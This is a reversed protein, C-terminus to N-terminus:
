SNRQMEKPTKGFHAKFCSTFYSVSSFGITFAVVKILEGRELREKAKNLRYLRIYENPGLNILAKLKRQLQREGMALENALLKLKFSEDSYNQEIVQNIKKIFENDKDSIENKIQEIAGQNDENILLSFRNRLVSRIALLNSVRLLLEEEDFPKTLYEDAQSKWGTLRSERDGRATLLIIPIHSTNQDQKLSECVEFGDKEPMMVDSIILDPVQMIATKIGRVGNEATMCHYDSELTEVIYKRMDPNDEIVLINSKINESEVNSFVQTIDEAAEEKLERSQNILSELELELSDDNYNKNEARGIRKTTTPLYVTFISGRGEESSLTIYGGHAEVLEKVLSLGIGAGTVKESYENLVRQYRDFVINQMGEPIGIGTDVVTIKCKEDSIKESSLSIMGGKQTYKVANSLLNLLIKEIADPATELWVAQNKILKFKIGKDESLDEFANAIHHVVEELQITKKAGEKAARFKEMYILQDVMRTLRYSNREVTKLKEKKKSEKELRLLSKIPGLILTLPTRFEHSVNAFEKNKLALLSEVHKKEVALEQTREKVSSELEKSKIQLARTRIAVILYIFAISFVIYFLFAWYTLWWPKAINIDVSRNEALWVNKKESAKVQFQYKGPPINTYSAYRKKYDVVRWDNEYGYLRYAYFLSKPKDFDLASFEFSFVNQHHSHNISLTETISQKLLSNPGIHVDNHFLQFQTIQPLHKKTSLKFSATNVSNLGKEGGLWLVNSQSDFYVAPTFEAKQVGDQPTLKIFKNTKRQFFSLGKSHGLWINKNNDEQINWIMNDSIHSNDSHFVIAKNTTPDYVVVGYGRTGLWIKGHSDEIVTNIADPIYGDIDKIAVLREEENELKLLGSARTAVWVNGNRDIISSKPSYKSLDQDRAGIKGFKQTKQSFRILGQDYTSIFIHGNNDGTIHNILNTPLESTSNSDAVFHKFTKDKSNFSIIGKEFTGFWMVGNVDRYLSTVDNLANEAIEENFRTILECKEQALNIRHVGKGSVAFFIETESTKVIANVFGGSLCEKANSSPSYWLVQKNLSVKRIGANTALWLNGRDDSYVRSIEDSPLNTADSSSLQKVRGFDNSVLFAGKGYSGLLYNKSPLEVISRIYSRSLASHAITNIATLDDKNLIFAGYQTGVFLQNQEVLLLSAIRNSRADGSSGRLQELNIKKLLNLKHSYRFLGQRTGFWFTDNDDQAIVTVYLNTLKKLSSYINDASLVSKLDASIWLVGTNHGIWINSESDEFIYSVRINALSDGADDRKIRNFRESKHDFWALGRKTGIWLRGNSDTFLKNIQFHPISSENKNEPRYVRCEYGDCQNLGDKSGVWLFGHHDIVIDNVDDNSLGLDVSDFTILQPKLGGQADMLAFLYISLTLLVCRLCHTIM